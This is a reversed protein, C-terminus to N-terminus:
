TLFCSSWEKTIIVVVGIYILLSIFTLIIMENKKECIWSVKKRRNELMELVDGKIKCSTMPQVNLAFGVGLVTYQLHNKILNNSRKVEYHDFM